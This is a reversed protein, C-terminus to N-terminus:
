KTSTAFPLHDLPPLAVGPPRRHLPHLPTNAAAIEPSWWPPGFAAAAADRGDPTATDTITPVVPPLWETEHQDAMERAGTMVVAGMGMLATVHLFDFDHATPPDDPHDAPEM